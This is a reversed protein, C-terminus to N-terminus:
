QVVPQPRQGSAEQPEMLSVQPKRQGRPHSGGNRTMLYVAFGHPWGSLGTERVLPEIEFHAGFRREVEGPELAAAFTAREWWRLPWEWTYLLYRTGPHALPLVNQVYLDRDKPRLDDPVGYDVLLDFPGTVHRLDTLDDVMFKVPVKAARARERAKEIAASSYDVGTVDFGHQALFVANSGTGCGLDIARSPPIRRSEVLEVLENRPGGDWPMHFYRYGLEYFWKM